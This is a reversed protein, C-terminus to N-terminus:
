KPSPILSSRQKHTSRWVYWAVPRDIRQEKRNTPVPTHQDIKSRSQLLQITLIRILAYYVTCCGLEAQTEQVAVFLLLRNCISWVVITSTRLSYVEDGDTFQLKMSRHCHCVYRQPPYKEIRVVFDDINLPAVVLQWSLVAHPITQEADRHTISSSNTRRHCLQSDAVTKGMCETCM